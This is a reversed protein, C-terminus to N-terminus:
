EPQPRWDAFGAYWFGRHNQQGIRNCDAFDALKADLRAWNSGLRGQENFDTLRLEDFWVYVPKQLGMM